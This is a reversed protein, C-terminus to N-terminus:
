AYFDVLGQTTKKPKESNELENFNDKILGDEEVWSTKAQEQSSNDGVSAEALAIGEKDFLEKLQEMNEHIVDKVASNQANFVVSAQESASINVRIQLAGLEPPDLQIEISRPGYQTMMMARNAIQQGWASSKIKALAKESINMTQSLSSKSQVEKAEIKADSVKAADSMEAVKTDVSSVISALGNSSDSGESANKAMAIARSVLDLEVTRPKADVPKLVITEDTVVGINKAEFPKFVSAPPIFASAELPDVQELTVDESQNELAEEINSDKVQEVSHEATQEREKGDHQPHSLVSDKDDLTESADKESVSEKSEIKEDKVIKEKKSAHAKLEDNFSSDKEQASKSDKIGQDAKPSLDLVSSKLDMVNM